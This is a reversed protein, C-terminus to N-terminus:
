TPTMKENISIGGGSSFRFRPVSRSWEYFPTMVPMSKRVSYIM